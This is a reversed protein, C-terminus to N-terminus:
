HVVNCQSKSFLCALLSDTDGRCSLSTPVPSFCILPLLPPLPASPLPLSLLCCCSCSVAPVPASLRASRSCSPLTPSPLPPPSSSACRSSQYGSTGCHALTSPGCMGSSGRATRVKTARWAKKASFLVRRLTTATDRDQRSVANRLHTYPSRDFCFVNTSLDHSPHPCETPTSARDDRM